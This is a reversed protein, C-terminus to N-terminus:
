GTVNEIHELRVVQEHEDLEIAIVDIRQLKPLAPHSQAYFQSTQIVEELKRPTVAEEPSGYARGIRTKVEVFVLVANKICVIDLEGYRLRFNRVLIRYGHKILFTSALDEGLKGLRQKNLPLNSKM